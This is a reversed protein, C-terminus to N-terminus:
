VKNSSPKDDKNFEEHWNVKPKLTYIIIMSIVPFFFGLFGWGGGSRNLQGARSACVAAGVIRLIFGFLMFVVAGENNGM